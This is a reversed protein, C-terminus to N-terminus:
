SWSAGELPAGRRVLGIRALARPRLRALYWDVTRAIGSAFSERPAWGLEDRARATDLAYRFDHGPRDPVFRILERCSGGRRVGREDLADCLAQVVELNRLEQGGGLNYSRGPTGAELVRLLGRCHDTVYLWDRVNEGTGYVPLPEGALARTIMLPILKEPHQHPGYTNSGHTILVPLGYTRGFARVLHDAAAKSASYPSSPDYRDEESFLGTPGLSGYVEDTSVAVLRFRERASAELTEYYRRLEELLACTGDVNSAVFRTPDDISRDVHTEAALHLVASPRAEALLARVLRRDRVDGHVFRHRRSRGLLSVPGRDGAYTLADLNVVPAAREELLLKVLSTGIFGAGGTVLIPRPEDDM